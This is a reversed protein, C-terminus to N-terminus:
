GPNRKVLLRGTFFRRLLHCDSSELGVVHLVPLNGGGYYGVWSLDPHHQLVPNRLLPAVALRQKGPVHDRLFDVM